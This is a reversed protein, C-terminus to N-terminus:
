VTKYFVLNRVGTDMWNGAAQVTQASVVPVYKNRGTHRGPEPWSTGNCEKRM